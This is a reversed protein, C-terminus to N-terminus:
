YRLTASFIFAREVEITPSTERHSPDLLNQGWVALELNHNPRWTFGLDLRAYAQSMSTPRNDIYYLAGNFELSDTIDLYSRAKIMHHPADGEDSQLIPGHIQVDVYSYSGELRWHESPRWTAVVEAGYTEGWGNNNWVGFVTPPVFLLRSYDNYFGAVDFTLDETFQRRYGVEYAFLEESDANPNPLVDLPVFIGSAPGGSLVGTDAIGLTLTADQETRSPVRVPRSVAAWLTNRENPTWWIRASPQFEFGTFSNHEFKSGIMFFWREPELTITDQIFASYTYLDRSAPSYVINPAPDTDDTSFRFGLGWVLEHHDTAMFHHRFDLDATDRFVRFGAGTRRNTRDYYTQLTWGSDNATEQGVRFLVNGGSAWGDDIIQSFMLHQFPVPVNSVQGFRNISYAESQLTFFTDSDGEFDLRFGGHLNDWDDHASAGTITEFHDRNFYKGWVRYWAHEGLKGGYRAAGFYNEETGGGGRLFLGQTDKASKTIINIVGNVANAGWLTSGPGRIVEIRDIDELLTDQADWFTGGFLPDYVARGDILVLTKNALGGSFGRMGITWAHANSQGVFVGPVLRLADALTRHGTRRMDEGTIVYMAAPTTFWEQKVGAATTVHIRMLQEIDAQLIDDIPLGQLDTIDQAHLNVSLCTAMVIAAACAMARRGVHCGNIRRSVSQVETIVRMSHEAQRDIQLDQEGHNALTDDFRHLQM